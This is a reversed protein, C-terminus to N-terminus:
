VTQYNNKLKEKKIYNDKARKEWLWFLLSFSIAQTFVEPMGILHTKLDVDTYIFGEISGPATNVAGVCTLGWVIGFLMLWGYKSGIIKERFPYLIVAFLGGRIFQFLVAARVIPSDLQRFHSFNENTAFESGYSFLNMFILGCVLYTFVHTLSFRKLYGLFIIRNEM